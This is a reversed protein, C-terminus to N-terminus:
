CRSSSMPASTPATCRKAFVMCPRLATVPSWSTMPACRRASYTWEASSPSTRLAWALLSPSRSTPDLAACCPLPLHHAERSLCMRLGHAPALFRVPSHLLTRRPGAWRSEYLLATVMNAFANPSIDREERLRYMNTRFRFKQELTQMDSALGTLGVIIKDNIQFLKQMDTGVTQNRIGFRKDSAIAICDKGAMAIVAAGNYQMISSM